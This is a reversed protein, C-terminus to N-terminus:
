RIIEKILVYGLLLCGILAISDSLVNSETM